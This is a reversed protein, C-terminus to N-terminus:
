ARVTVYCRRFIPDQDDQKEEDDVWWCPSDSFLVPMEAVVNGAFVPAGIVSRRDPHHRTCPRKIPPAVPHAAPRFVFYRFCGWAFYGAPRTPRLAYSPHLAAVGMVAPSAIIPKASNIM